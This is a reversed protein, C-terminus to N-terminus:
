DELQEHELLWRVEGEGNAVELTFSAASCLSAAGTLFEQMPITGQGLPSHTDWTGDNNHIHFHRIWPALTELWSFVDMRSCVNAHGVDLCIGLRPDNVGQVIEKLWQPDSEMVNELCFCCDEPQERLFEKWFAASQETFWVPYYVNPVFGAHFVIQKAGYRAALDSAQRYREMALARAKPDIACPFLENFPGHFLRKRIGMVERQVQADTEPFGEDMNAATCFQAIEIGLGYKRATKGASPDITSLYLQQRKM